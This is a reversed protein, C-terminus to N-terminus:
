PLSANLEQARSEVGKNEEELSSNFRPPSGARVEGALPQRSPFRGRLYAVPIPTRPFCGLQYVM